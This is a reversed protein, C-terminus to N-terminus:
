NRTICTNKGSIWDLIMNGAAATTLLGPPATLGHPPPLCAPRRRDPRAAATLAAATLPWGSPESPVPGAPDTAAGPSALPRSAAAQPCSRPGTSFGTMRTSMM